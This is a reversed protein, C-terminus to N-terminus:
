LKDGPERDRAFLGLRSAASGPAAEAIRVPEPGDSAPPTSQADTQVEKVIESVRRVEAADQKAVSADRRAENLDADRRESIVGKRYFFLAGVLLSGLLAFFAFALPVASRDAFAGLRLGM